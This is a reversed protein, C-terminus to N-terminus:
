CGLAYTVPNQVPGDLTANVAERLEAVAAKQEKPHVRSYFITRMQANDFPPRQGNIIMPIVPKGRTHAVGLEYHVNPNHNTLDAVILDASEILQIIQTPIMGSKKLGDARDIRWGDESLAESVIELFWDAEARVSSGDEGIPSIVFCLKKPKDNM